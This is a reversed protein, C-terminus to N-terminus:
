SKTARTKTITEEFIELGPIAREGSDIANRIATDDPTIRCLEPRATYLEATNLVRFSWVNKPTIGAVKPLPKFTQVPVFPAPAPPPTVPASASVTKFPAAAANRKAEEAAKRNAEETAKRVEEAAAARAAQERKQEEAAYAAILKQLRECEGALPADFEAALKDVEGKSKTLPAVVEKRSKEVQSRMKVVEKLTEAAFKYDEVNAIAKVTGASWLVGDRLDLADKLLSAGIANAGSLVIPIM